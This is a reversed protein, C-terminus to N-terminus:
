SAKFFVGIVIGAATGGVVTWPSLLLNFRNAPKTQEKAM